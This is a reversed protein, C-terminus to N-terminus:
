SAFNGNRLCTSIVGFEIYQQYFNLKLRETYNMGIKLWREGSKSSRKRGLQEGERLKAAVIAKSVDLEAAKRRGEFETKGAGDLAVDCDLEAKELM